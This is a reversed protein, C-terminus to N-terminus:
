LSTDILASLSTCLVHDMASLLELASFCCGVFHSAALLRVQMAAFVDAASVESTPLEYKLTGGLAYTLRAGPSLRAVFEQAAAEQATTVTISFVLYGGYRRVHFFSRRNPLSTQTAINQSALNMRPPTM